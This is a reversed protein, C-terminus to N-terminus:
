ENRASFVFFTRSGGSSTTYHGKVCIRQDQATVKLFNQAEENVPILPFSFVQDERGERPIRKLELQVQDEVPLTNAAEAGLKFFRACFDAALVSSSQALLAVLFTAHISQSLKM